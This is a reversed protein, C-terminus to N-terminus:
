GDNARTSDLEYQVQVYGISSGRRQATWPVGLYVAEIPM